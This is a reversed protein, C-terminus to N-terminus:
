VPFFKSIMRLQPKEFTVLYLYFSVSSLETLVILSFPKDRGCYHKINVKEIRNNGATFKKYSELIAEVGPWFVASTQKKKRVVSLDEPETKVEPKYPSTLVKSLHPQLHAPPATGPESKVEQLLLSPKSIPQLSCLNIESPISTPSDNALRDCSPINLQARPSVPSLLEVSQSPPLFSEEWSRKVGRGLVEQSQQDTMERLRVFYKTLAREKDKERALRDDLVVSWIVENTIKQEESNRCLGIASLYMAKAHTEPLRNLHPAISPLPLEPSMPREDLKVPVPSPSRERLRERRRELKKIEIDNKKRHTVLRFYRLYKLKDKQTAIDTDPERFVTVAEESLESLLHGSNPCLQLSGEKKISSDSSMSEYDSDQDDPKVIDDLDVNTSGEKCGKHTSLSAASIDEHDESPTLGSAPLVPSYDDEFPRVFMKKPTSVSVTPKARQKPVYPRCRSVTYDPDLPPSPSRPSPSASKVSDSPSVTRVESIDLPSTPLKIDSSVNPQLRHLAPSSIKPLKVQSDRGDSSKKVASPSARMGERAKALDRRELELRRSEEARIKNEQMRAVLEGASNPPLQAMGYAQQLLEPPYGAMVSPPLPHGAYPHLGPPLGPPLGPLSPVGMTPLSALYRAM